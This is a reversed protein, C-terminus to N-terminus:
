KGARPSPVEMQLIPCASTMVVLMAVAEKCFSDEAVTPLHPPPTGASLAAQSPGADWGPLAAPSRSPGLKDWIGMLWTLAPTVRM